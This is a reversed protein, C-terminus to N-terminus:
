GHIARQVFDRMKTLDKVGKSEEVGGSVDVAYPNVKVIASAVNDKSLGGALIIPKKVAEIRQWDFVQGTGGPVGAQYSDLLLASASAYTKAETTLNVDDRMRVAKIYPREFQECFSASEDGHFQIVDVPLASLVDLVQEKEPNVFLAVISLFPPLGAVIHQAQAVDVFRASKSYFVLGIADVGIEAAFEADQRRTIGCIKVRTRM